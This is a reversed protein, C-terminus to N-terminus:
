KHIVGDPHFAHFAFAFTLDHVADVLGDAVRRQVTVSGIDRGEAIDRRDLAANQGPAWSLVLDGAAIRGDRQLLALAWAENGVAVVYDLPRIGDPFSGRYLFPREATDYGEYPNFGPGGRPNLLVDGDPFRDRFGDFSEVRVPLMPLETGTMAGVIGIGTFQQWWSETQRDWMVLDSHRLKGSVGFTLERGDVIRDFVVASNCLPCFTVAIPRGALTDNVIEHAMLIGLPYARGVGGIVVTIVPETGSYLRAVEGAPAFRPDDIPPIGDKPVGGSVIEDLPVAHRSFDTDPWELRWFAPDAAATGVALAAPLLCGALIVAIHYWARRIM